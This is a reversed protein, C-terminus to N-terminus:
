PSGFVGDLGTVQLLRDVVASRAGLTFSVSAEEAHQRATVLGRLGSSDMFTVADLLLVVPTGADILGLLCSELQPASAVDVEGAASVTAAGDAEAVGISFTPAADAPM